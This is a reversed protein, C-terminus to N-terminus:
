RDLAEAAKTQDELSELIRAIAIFAASRAPKRDGEEADDGCGNGEAHFAVALLGVADAYSLEATINFIAELADDHKKMEALQAPTFRSSGARYPANM